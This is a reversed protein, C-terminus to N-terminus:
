CHTSLHMALIIGHRNLKLIKCCINSLSSLDRHNSHISVEGLFLTKTNARTHERYNECNVSNMETYLILGRNKM